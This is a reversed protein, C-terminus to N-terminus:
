ADPPRHALAVYRAVAGRGAVWTNKGPLRALGVEQEMWAVYRARDSSAQIRLEEMGDDLCAGFLRATDRRWTGMPDPLEQDVVGFSCTARAGSRFGAFYSNFRGAQEHVQGILRGRGRLLLVSRHLWVRHADWPRGGACWLPDTQQLNLNYHHAVAACDSRALPRYVDAGPEAAPRIVSESFV